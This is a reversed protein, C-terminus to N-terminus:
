RAIPNETAFEATPLKYINIADQIIFEVSETGDFELYMLLTLPCGGADIQLAAGPAGRDDGVLAHAGFEQTRAVGQQLVDKYYGFAL